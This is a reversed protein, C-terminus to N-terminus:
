LVIPNTYVLQLLVTSLSALTHSGINSMDDAQTHWYRRRPNPDKNGILEMDIIDVAPIGADILPRHDDTIGGGVQDVFYDPAYIRGLDWMRQVVPAASEVSAQEKMFRAQKDGVLDLLIAYRPRQVPMNEAFYKSGICFNDGDTRYGIDEGDFFVLDIGIDPKKEHFVRALELLIAVGSAGDNAAPIGKAYNAHVSDEDSRPRSDWHACLIIRTQQAPNIRGVINCLHWNIGYVDQQFTQQVVTDCFPQLSNTIFQRCDDHAKTNPVRAGFAVQTQCLQMLRNEDVTPLQLQQAHNDQVPSKPLQEQHCSSFELWPIVSTFLVISLKNFTTM